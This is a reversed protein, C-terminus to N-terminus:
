LTSPTPGIVFDVDNTARPRGHFSSAFSGSVMYPIGSKALASIINNLFENQSTM